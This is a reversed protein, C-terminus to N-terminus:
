FWSVGNFIGIAILILIVTVMGSTMLKNDTTAEVTQSGSGFWAAVLSIVYFFIPLQESFFYTWANAYIFVFTIYTAIASGLPMIIQVHGKAFIGGIAAFPIVVLGIIIPNLFTLFALAIVWFGITLLIDM